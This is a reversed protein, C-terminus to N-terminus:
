AALKQPIFFIRTISNLHIGKQLLRVIGKYNPTWNNIKAILDEIGLITICRRINYVTMILAM